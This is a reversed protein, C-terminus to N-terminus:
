RDMIWQMMEYRERTEPVKDEIAWVLYVMGLVKIADLLRTREFGHDEILWTVKEAFEEVSRNKNFLFQVCDYYSHGSVGKPDIITFGRSKDWLINEHHLDGHLNTDQQLDKLRSSALKAEVLWAGPVESVEGDLASFWTEINPLSNKVTKSLGSNHLRRWQEVFLRVNTRTDPFQANLTTGPSISEMIYYGEETNSVLLAAIVTQDFVELARVENTFDYGPLGIKVVVEQEEKMARAVYNYSLNSFPQISHLGQEHEVKTILQPLKELWQEGREGFAAVIREEFTM